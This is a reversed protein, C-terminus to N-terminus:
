DVTGYSNSFTQPRALVAYHTLSHCVRQVYEMGIKIVQPMHVSVLTFRLELGM